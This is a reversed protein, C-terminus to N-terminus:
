SWMKLVGGVGSNPVNSEALRESFAQTGRRFANEDLAGILHFVSGFAALNLAHGAEHDIHMSGSAKDVFSFNGMNFATDLYNLNAIFGSVLFMTGTKWDMVFTKLLFYTSRTPLGIALAGLLSLILFLAGLAVVLWSMPLLWNLYGLMGHYFGFASFVHLALLLNLVGLVCGIIIGPVEGFMAGYVAAGLAFNLGANIGIMGGRMLEGVVQGVFISALIYAVIVLGSGVGLAIWVSPAFKLGVMLAAGVGAGAM